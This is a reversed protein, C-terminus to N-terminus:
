IPVSLPTGKPRSSMGDLRCRCTQSPALARCGQDIHPHLEESNPSYQKQEDNVSVQTFIHMYVLTRMM